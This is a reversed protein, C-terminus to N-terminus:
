SMRIQLTNIGTNNFYEVESAIGWVLRIGINAAPNEDNLLKMRKKPDFEPCDDRFRIILGNRTVLRIYLQNRKKPTFGHLIVNNAMEEICLGTFMALKASVGRSRCFGISDRSIKAVEKVSSVACEFVDERKAGFDKNLMLATEVSLSAPSFAKGNKVIAMVVLVIILAADVITMSLWAADSGIKPVFFFAFLGQLFPDLFSFLGSLLKKEQVQYSKLLIYFITNPVTFMPVLLFMRGVLPTASDDADMFLETLNGSSIMTLAAVLACVLVGISLSIKALDIYSERDDEGYYIGALIVFSSYSSSAFAGTISSVTVMINMAAMGDNGAYQNLVSNTMANKIPIALMTMAYPMGYIIAPTVALIDFSQWRFHIAKERNRFSTSLIIMSIINCLTTSLGIGLIGFALGLFYNGFANVVLMTLISIYSLRNDNNFSVLGMLYKSILLFPVGPIYGTMYNVLITRNEGSAGILGAIDYRFEFILIACVAPLLFLTILCSFFMSNLKGQEGEGILKGTQIQSGIVIIDFLNLAATVPSFFGIAALTRTGFMNGVFMSDVFLNINTILQVMINVALLRIFAERILMRRAKENMWPFGKKAQSCNM